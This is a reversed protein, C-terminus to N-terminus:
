EAKKGTNKEIMQRAAALTHEKAFAAMSVSAYAAAVRILQHEEPTLYISLRKDNPNQPM